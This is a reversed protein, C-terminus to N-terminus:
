VDEHRLLEGPDCRLARIAPTASALTALGLLVGAGWGYSALSTASVEFLWGSLLRTLWMAGILGGVVGAVSVRLNENVVLRLLARRNAGLAARVGLERRRSEVTETTSGWLGISALVLAIAGFSGFLWLVFRRGASQASVVAELSVLDYPALQPDVRWVASRVDNLLAEADGNARVLIQVAGAPMQHLVPFVAPRTAQGLGHSKFDNVVGVVRWWTGFFSVRASVAGDPGFYRQELTRNIVVVPETEAQDTPAVDRGALLTAGVVSFYGPSVARLNVMDREGVPIGEDGERIFRTLWGRKLPHHWGLAAGTVGPIRAVEDLVRDYFTAEPLDVSVSLLQAPEFGPDVGLLRVLSRGLLAVSVMLVTTAGIQASLLWARTRRAGKRSAGGLVLSGPRFSVVAIGTALLAAAIAAGVASVVIVLGPKLLDLQAHDGPVFRSANAFLGAVLVTSVLGVVVGIILGEGLLQAVLDRRTAGLATRVALERERRLYRVLILGSANVIAVGLVLAVALALAAFVPKFEAALVDDLPTVVFRRGLNSDPFREELMAGIRDLDTRATEISVDQRLRGIVRLDGAQRRLSSSNYPLPVWADVDLGNLPPRRRLVGVVLHSAGDVVISAGVAAGLGGFRRLALRESLVIHNPAAPGSESRDFLRGAVASVGTILFVSPTTRALEIKVGGGDVGALAVPMTEYAALERFVRNQAQIDFYDPGSIDRAGVGLARAFSSVVVLEEPTRYPPPRLIVAEVLSFVSTAAIVGFCLTGAVSFLFLPHRRISRASETLARDFMGVTQRGRTRWRVRAMLGPGLSSWAQYWYWRRAAGLGASRAVQHFEEEAEALLYPRDHPGVSRGLVFRAFRPMKM